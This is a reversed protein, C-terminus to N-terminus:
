WLVCKKVPNMPSGAKCKFAQSFYDSNQVVGNIRYEQPAHSDATIVYLNLRPSVSACYTRAYQIFFLQEPTHRQLGPLRVNNHKKNSRGSRYRQYWAEFALKIGSNDAINEGLTFTGNVNVKVGKPGTITFNDYQKVFCRAKEDFAKISSQEWWNRLLGKKDYTRGSDDFAHGLEHGITSGIGGFNM